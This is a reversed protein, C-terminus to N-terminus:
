LGYQKPSPLKVGGVQLFWLSYLAAESVQEVDCYVTQVLSSIASEDHVQRLYDVAAMREEETGTKLVKVLLEVPFMGGAVGVGQQSAFNIVWPAESPHPAPAPLHANPLELAEVAQTAASRVVWQGDEVRMNKMIDAAWPKNVQILGFVVARRVLIDEARSGEKLLAHGEESRRALAEAAARRLDEDGNELAQVLSELAPREQIASLALCAAYRVLPHEDNLGNTLAELAKGDKLAGCGLAALQRLAPSKGNLWSRILYPIGSDGSCVLAALARQRSGMPLNEQHVIDALSKLVVARSSIRGPVDKIWRAAQFLGPYLPEDGEVIISHVLAPLDECSTLYHLTTTKGTWVPQSSLGQFHDSGALSQAALFGMLATHSFQIRDGARNILLGSQIWTSILRQATEANEGEGKKHSGPTSGAKGTDEVTSKTWDHSGVLEEAKQILKSRDFVPLQAYVMQLALSQLIPLSRPDGTSRKIFAAIADKAYPGQLDGLVASWVKLSFELPSLSSLDASLWANLLAPDVPERPIDSGFEPLIRDSWLAQWREFFETYEKETWAAISLPVINLGTLGDLYDVPAAVVLRTQPYQELLGQLYKRTKEMQAPPFEDLGDVILVAKGQSFVEQIFAPVQPSLTGSVLSSLYGSVPALLNGGKPIDLLLDAVHIFVPFCGRLAAADSHSLAVQQALHALCISKGSGPQGIVAIRTGNQLCEALSLTPPNFRAALEPWDPLYSQAYSLIEDPPLQGGPVIRPPPALLRPTILIDELSFLSCALHNSQVRRIVERRLHLELISSGRIQQKAKQISLQERLRPWTRRLNQFIWWFLTAALFGILFSLRDFNM